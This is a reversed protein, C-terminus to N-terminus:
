RNLYRLDINSSDNRIFFMMPRSTWPVFERRGEFSTAASTRKTLESCILISHVGRCLPQTTELSIQYVHVCGFIIDTILILKSLNIQIVVIEKQSEVPAKRNGFIVVKKHLVKETRAVRVGNRDRHGDHVTRNESRSTHRRSRGEGRHSGKGTSDGTTLNIICNVDQIIICTKVAPM